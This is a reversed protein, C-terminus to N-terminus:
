LLVPLAYLREAKLGAAPNADHHLALGAPLLTFLKKRHAFREVINPM